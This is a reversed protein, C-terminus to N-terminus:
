ECTLVRLCRSALIARPFLLFPFFCAVLGWRSSTGRPAAHVRLAENL